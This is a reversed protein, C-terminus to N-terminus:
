LICQQRIIHPIVGRMLPCRACAHPYPVTRTFMRVHACVNVRLSNVIPGNTTSCSDMHEHKYMQSSNKIAHLVLHM